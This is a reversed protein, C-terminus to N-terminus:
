HSKPKTPSSIPFTAVKLDRYTGVYDWEYIQGDYFGGSPPRVTVKYRQSHVLDLECPTQCRDVGDVSVVAGAIPKGQVVSVIKLKPQVFWIVVAIVFVGGFIYPILGSLSENKPEQSNSWFKSIFSLRSM